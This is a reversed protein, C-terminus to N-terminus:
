RAIELRESRAEEYVATLRGAWAQPTHRAEAFARARRGLERRRQPDDLLAATAEAIADAEDAVVLPPEAEWGAYGEAGRATTVVAKGSALAQLVKMRMGGGTRVPALVVSAAEIHPGIEPVDGLVEVRPGALGLVEPSPATGVIRLVAAPRRAWVGPMIRRALWTAADRNPPHDFNGAFLVTGPEERSPDAPDPLVLGFPNVRVRPAVDPALEALTEADRRTFVQVRDFRRWAAVQFGEWRRWDIERLALRPWRAPSGEPRAVGRVRLVEHHTFVAPVGAPLRFMSMASDEVAIVDPAASEGLRDLIGQIQPAAFWVTRWPWGRTAWTSTLRLHRRWRAAGLPPRRRDAVHLDTGERRLEEVAEGDGPEDGLATVLTVDHLERLGSLEAYLLVPIAGVGEARPVMPALLLVRM